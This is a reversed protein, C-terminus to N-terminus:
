NLRAKGRLVQSISGFLDATQKQIILSGVKKFPVTFSVNCRKCHHELVAQSGEPSRAAFKEMAQRSEFRALLDELPPSAGCEPCGIKLGEDRSTM